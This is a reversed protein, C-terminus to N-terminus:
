TFRDMGARICWLQDRLGSEWVILLLTVLHIRVYNSTYYLASTHPTSTCQFAVKGPCRIQQIWMNPMLRHHSNSWVQWGGLLRAWSVIGCHYLFGGVSFHPYEEEQRSTHNVIVIHVMRSKSKSHRAYQTCRISCINWKYCLATVPHLYKSVTANMFYEVYNILMLSSVWPSYQQVNRGCEHTWCHDIPVGM